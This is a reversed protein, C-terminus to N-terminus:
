RPVRIFKRVQSVHLSPFASPIDYFSGYNADNWTGVTTYNLDKSKESTVCLLNTNTVSKDPCGTAGM